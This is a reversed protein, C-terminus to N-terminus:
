HKTAQLLVQVAYQWLTDQAFGEIKCNNSLVPFHLSQLLLCWGQKCYAQSASVTLLSLATEAIRVQKMCCVSCGKYGYYTQGNAYSSYNQTAQIIHSETSRRVTMSGLVFRTARCSNDKRMQQLAHHGFYRSVKM